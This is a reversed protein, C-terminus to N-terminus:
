GSSIQPKLCSFSTKLMEKPCSGYAQKTGGGFWLNTMVNAACSLTKFDLPLPIKEGCSKSSNNLNFFFFFCTVSLIGAGIDCAIYEGCLPSLACRTGSTYGTCSKQM